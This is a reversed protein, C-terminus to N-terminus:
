VFTFDLPYFLLVLYKGKYDDLKVKKFDSGIGSVAPMEFDPALKGVLREM